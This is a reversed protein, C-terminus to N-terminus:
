IRVGMRRAGSILLFLSVAVLILMAIANVSVGQAGSPISSGVGIVTSNSSYIYYQPLIGVLAGIAGPVIVGFTLFLIGTLRAKIFNSVASGKKSRRTKRAM